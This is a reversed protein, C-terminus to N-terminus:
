QLEIGLQEMRSRVAPSTLAKLEEEWRFNWHAYKADAYGPHCMLETTGDPLGELIALLRREDLWGSEFLGTMRDCTQVGAARISGRAFESLFCLVTKGVVRSSKWVGSRLPSDLPVRVRPIGFEKAAQIVLSWMGPLAHVHQHSDLHTLKLGAQRCREFQARLEGELQATKIAGTIVAKAFHGYGPSMVSGTTLWPEEVLSWHLGIKLQPLERAREAAYDFAAGNAMISTSTVIGRTHAEIIGDTIPVSLGFDDANVLLRKM